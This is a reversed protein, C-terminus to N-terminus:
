LSNVIEKFIEGRQEYDRFMGWSACAPSLLVADGPAALSKATMIMERFDESVAIIETFGESVADRMIAETNSGNVVAAKVRGRAARFVPRYDSRKDYNGAGLLLVTPATMAEIAKITSEPNTGKSDNYYTVGDLIRTFEIRHEVGRFERLVRRLAEVHVGMGLSLCVACLANELNHAGIIGLEDAPIVDVEIFGRRYVIMGDRVFAGNAVEHQRSFTLVKARTRAQMVIPDDANLVAIDDETQNEFMRMKAAIYAEMSGFRNVHDETINLLGAANCRFDVISEFQLAATEAVVTDGPRTELAHETIPIGINGLVFTRRGDGAMEDNAKFIEGTLATTTTKGNTGGICVFRAGRDAYRWGLEIEGIVEIGRAIAQKVFPRFIPIVPSIVMLDVGDLLAEPPLGLRNEYEIGALAEELGDIESKLDNIIVRYGEHYLLKASSVGSKAMGVILATKKRENM